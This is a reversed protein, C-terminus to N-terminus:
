GHGSSVIFHVIVSVLDICTFLDVIRVSHQTTLTLLLITVYDGALYLLCAANECQLRLFSTYLAYWDIM